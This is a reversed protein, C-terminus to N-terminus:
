LKSEQLVENENGNGDNKDVKKEMKIRKQKRKSFFARIGSQFIYEFLIWCNLYLQSM